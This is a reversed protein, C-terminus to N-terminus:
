EINGKAENKKLIKHTSNELSEKRIYGLFKLERKSLTRKTGMKRLAKEKGM